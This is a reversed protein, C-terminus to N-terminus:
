RSRGLGADRQEGTTVPSGNAAVGGVYQDGAGAVHGFEHSVVGAGTSAGITVTNGGISNTEERGSLTVGQTTPVVGVVTAASADQVGMATVQVQQGNVDVAGSFDNAFRAEIDATSAVPTAQSSDVRYTVVLQVQNPAIWNLKAERGDPDTFKYPNNNAYAYRNFNAGTNPNVTVPDNSAAAHGTVLLSLALVVTTIARPMHM